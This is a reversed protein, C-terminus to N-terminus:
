IRPHKSTHNCNMIYIYKIYVYIIYIIHNATLLAIPDVMGLKVMRRTPIFLMVGM